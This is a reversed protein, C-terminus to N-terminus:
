CAQEAVPNKSTGLTFLWTSFAPLPKIYDVLYQINVIISTFFVKLDM